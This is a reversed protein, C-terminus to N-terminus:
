ERDEGVNGVRREETRNAYVLSGGGYAAAQAVTVGDLNRLDWLGQSGNWMWRKPDPFLQGPKPFDPISAIDYRRGRELVCVRLGAQALRCTTVAGGFGTGVVIAQFENPM